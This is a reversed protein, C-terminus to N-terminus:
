SLYYAPNQPEGNKRVEFHLSSEKARGTAGAKAIVSGRGVSDGVNVLIASNYAYVTQLGSGHDIIVTNGLGKMHPDCYVVRGSKAARVVAGESARIDIGKSRFPGSVGFPTIVYGKLPWLFGENALGYVPYTGVTASKVAPGSVMTHPATACGSLFLAACILIPALSPFGRRGAYRSEPGASNSEALPRRRGIPDACNPKSEM